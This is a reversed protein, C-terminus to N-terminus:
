IESLLEALPLDRGISDSGPRGAGVEAAARHAVVLRSSRRQAAHDGHPADAFGLVDGTGDRREQGALAVPDGALADFRGAPHTQSAECRSLLVFISMPIM